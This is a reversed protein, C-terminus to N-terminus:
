IINVRNKESIRNLLYRCYGSLNHEIDDIRVRFSHHRIFFSGVISEPRKFYMALEPYFFGTTQYHARHEIAKKLYEVPFDVLLYEKELKYILNVMDYAAMMLELFTPYTTHRHYIFDLKAKVNQLGFQFYQDKPRFKTLENTCYSLWHDHHKWYDHKIFYAFAKEVGEIWVENRDIHYLKMLAFAAEGDYYIIRHEDKIQFDPYNLVHSFSGDEKQMHIIGNALRRVLDLDTKTQFVEMYKTLALIAAANAGLKIEQQNRWDIVFAQDCSTKNHILEKKLYQLAKEIQRKVYLDPTMEYAEIMSYLTSAHRLSNYWDIKKDYCPFYGYVFEGNDMVQKALFHVSSTILHRVEKNSMEVLRIGNFQEKNNLKILQDDFFYSITTFEYIQHVNQLSFNTQQKKVKKLYRRVNEENLSMKLSHNSEKILANGNIEQELFSMNFLPDFSIGKRFYNKKLKAIQQSWNTYPKSEIHNVLDAKLWLFDFIKQKKMYKFVKNVVAKWSSEMTNGIASFVVAREDPNGLSLFLVFKQKRGFHLKVSPMVKKEESMIARKLQVLKEAFSNTGKECSM